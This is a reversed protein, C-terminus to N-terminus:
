MVRKRDQNVALLKSPSNRFLCTYRRRLKLADAPPGTDLLTEPGRSRGSRRRHIRRLPSEIHGLSLKFHWRIVSTLQTEECSPPHAMMTWHHDPYEARLRDAPLM